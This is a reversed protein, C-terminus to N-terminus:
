VWNEGLDEWRMGLSRPHPQSAGPEAALALFRLVGTDAARDDAKLAPDGGRPRWVNPHIWSGEKM